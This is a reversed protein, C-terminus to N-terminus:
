TYLNVSIQSIDVDSFKLRTTECKRMKKRFMSGQTRVDPFLNIM